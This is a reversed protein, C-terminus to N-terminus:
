GWDMPFKIFLLITPFSILYIVARVKKFKTPNIVNSGTASNLICLFLKYYAM